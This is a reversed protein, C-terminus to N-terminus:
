ENYLDITGYETLPLEMVASMDVSEPDVDNVITEVVAVIEEEDMTGSECRVYMRYKQGNEDAKYLESEYTLPGTGMSRVPSNFGTWVSETVDGDTIHNDVAIHLVDGDENELYKDYTYGSALYFGEPLTFTVGCMTVDSVFDPLPASIDETVDEMDTSEDTEAAAIDSDQEMEQKEMDSGQSNEEEYSVNHGTEAEPTKRSCGAAIVSLMLLTIILKRKM